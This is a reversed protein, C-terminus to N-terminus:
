HVMEVGALSTRHMTRGSEADYPVVRQLAGCNDWIVFDGERWHHRYSFDPQAAWEVLRTLVARGHALPMGVGPDASSGIVMSTRGATRNWVIPHEKVLGISSRQEEEESLTDGLLPRLSSRVSHVARLGALEAK